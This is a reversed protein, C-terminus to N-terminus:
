VARRGDPEELAYAVAAELTMAQGEAYAAAFRAEGLAKRVAAATRAPDPRIDPPLSSVIPAPLGAAAGLLRAARDADGAHWAIAALGAVLPANVAKRGIERYLTLCQCFTARAAGYDGETLALLGLPELLEALGRKDNQMMPLSEAYYSHAAARDGEWLAVCGLNLLGWATMLPNGMGRSIELGEEFHDRAVSYEGLDVANWGLMYLTFAPKSTEQRITLSEQYLARATRPDGADAVVSGLHVLSEATGQADKLERWISLSEEYLSRAIRLEHQVQSAHGAHALVRARDATRAPGLLALLKALWERQETQHGQAYWFTELSNALRVGSDLDANALAWTLAARLNGHETELRDLWAPQDPGGLEPEAQLALQLFFRLHRARAPAAEGADLLREGAYQRVTELLRYRGGSGAQEYDVLSKEVLQTLLDLVEWEEIGDATCVAEAAELTWGGSFVSLWRFVAREAETLLDYSWDILARLTQQRPLATRSGGTLLRFRDEIWTNIQEVSMAKVRAAAMEIALPIGDLRV